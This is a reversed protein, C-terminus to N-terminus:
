SREIIESDITEINATLNKEVGNSSLISDVLQEKQALLADQTTKLEEIDPYEALMQEVETLDEEVVSLRAEASIRAQRATRIEDDLQERLVAANEIFTNADQEKTILKAMEAKYDINNKKATEIDKEIAELQEESAVINDNIEKYREAYEKAGKQALAEYGAAAAGCILGAKLSTDSDYGLLNSLAGCLAAGGAGQKAIEKGDYGEEGEKKEDKKKDKDEVLEKAKNWLDSLQADASPVFSMTTGLVAAIILHRNM